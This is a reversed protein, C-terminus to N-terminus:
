QLVQLIDLTPNLQLKEYSLSSTMAEGSLSKQPSCM